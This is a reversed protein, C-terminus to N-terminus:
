HITRKRRLIILPPPTLIPGFTDVQKRPKKKGTYWNHNKGPPHFSLISWILNITDDLMGPAMQWQNTMAFKFESVSSSREYVENLEKWYALFSDRFVVSSRSFDREILMAKLRNNMVLENKSITSSHSGVRGAIEKSTIRENKPPFSRNILIERSHAYFDGETVAKLVVPKLLKLFECPSEVNKDPLLKRGHFEYYEEWNFDYLNDISDIFKDIRDLAEFVIQSSATESHRGVNTLYNLLDGLTEIGECELLDAYRGFHLEQLPKTTIEDSLNLGLLHPFRAYVKFSVPIRGSKTLVAFIFPLPEILDERTVNWTTSLIELFSDAHMEEKDKFAAEADRWLAAYEPRFRYQATEYHDDLLGESIERLLNKQKQRIRERTVGHKNGLEELTLQDATFKTLRDRVIDAEVTDAAAAIIGEIIKPISKLIGSGASINKSEPLLTIGVHECFVDWDIQMHEDIAIPLGEIIKKAHAVSAKGFNPLMPAGKDYWTLLSRMTDYGATQLWSARPGLHFSTVPTDAVSHDLKGLIESVSLEHERAKDCLNELAERIEKITRKGVHQVPPHFDAEAWKILHAVRVLGGKKLSNERGGLGLITISRSFYSSNIRTWLTGQIKSGTPIEIGEIIEESPDKIFLHPVSEFGSKTMAKSLDDQPLNDNGM